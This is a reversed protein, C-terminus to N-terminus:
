VGGGVFALKAWLAALLLLTSAAAYQELNRPIRRWAFGSDSDDNAGSALARYKSLRVGLAPVAGRYRVYADGYTRTLRKEEYLATPVYFAAVVVVFLIYSWWIHSGVCLGIGILTSGVYLPHRTHAFPGTVTLVQDKVLHGAAWFRLAEGALALLTGAALAGVGPRVDLLWFAAVIVVAALRTAIMRNLFLFRSVDM